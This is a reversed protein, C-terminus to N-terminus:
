KRTSTKKTPATSSKGLIPTMPQFKYAQMHRYNYNKALASVQNGLIPTVRQQHNISYQTPKYTSTPTLNSMHCIRTARIKMMCIMMTMATMVTM